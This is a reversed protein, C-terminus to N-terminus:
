RGPPDVPPSVPKPTLDDTGGPDVLYSYGYPSHWLFVGPEVM